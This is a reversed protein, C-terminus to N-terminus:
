AQNDAEKNELLGPFIPPAKRIGPPQPLRPLLEEPFGLRMLAKKGELPCANILRSRATTHNWGLQMAVDSIRINYGKMWAYLKEIREVEEPPKSRWAPVKPKTAKM